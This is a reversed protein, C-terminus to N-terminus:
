TGPRRWNTDFGLRHLRAIAEAIGYGVTAVSHSDDGPVVAIGLRRAEELIPRSIYPEDAGKYLARTNLDLILDFQKIKELNRMFKERVTPLQLHQRYNPDFIRILDFHGIVAPRLAEIMQLQCDFYDCYLQAPNGAHRMTQRYADADFDFNLDYVHHVSGVLYDPEFTDVLTNIWDITGCYTETEMGVLLQIENAHRAKLRRATRIFAAFRDYLHKASLDAAVEDPYRFADNVPPMHETLGVWTFGKQIYTKVLAELSDTAHQCFEGSHGGHVSVLQTDKSLSMKTKAM